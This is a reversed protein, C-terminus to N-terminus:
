TCGRGPLDDSTNTAKLDVQVNYHISYVCYGTIELVSKRYFGKGDNGEEFIDYESAGSKCNRCNRLIHLEM